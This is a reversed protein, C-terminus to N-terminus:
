SSLRPARCFQLAVGYKGDPRDSESIIDARLVRAFGAIKGGFELLGSKPPVSLEVKLLRGPKFHRDQTEFYVGGAAANLTCGAHKLEEASGVLRCAIEFRVGLRKYKRREDRDMTHM